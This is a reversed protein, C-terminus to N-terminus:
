IYINIDYIYYYIFFPMDVVSKSNRICLHLNRQAIICDLQMATKKFM